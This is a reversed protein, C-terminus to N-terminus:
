NDNLTEKKEKNMQLYPSTHIIPTVGEPPTYYKQLQPPHPFINNYPAYRNNWLDNTIANLTALIIVFVPLFVILRFYFVRGVKWINLGSLDRTDTRFIPREIRWLLRFGKRQLITREFVAAYFFLLFFWGMYNGLPVGHWHFAPVTWRWWENVVAIPDFLVDYSVLIIGGVAAKLWISSEEGFFRITMVVVPFSLIFWGICVMLPVFLIWTSFGGYGEILKGGFSYYNAYAFYDYGGFIVNMNEITATWLISGWLFISTIERGYIQRAEYLVLLFVPLSLLEFIWSEIHM